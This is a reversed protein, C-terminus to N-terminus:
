RNFSKFGYYLENFGPNRRKLTQKVMSGWIREDEGREALLAELTEVVLELGQLIREEREAASVPMGEGNGMGRPEALAEESTLPEYAHSPKDQRDSRDPKDREAQVRDAKEVKEPKESKEPKEVKKRSARAKAVASSRGRQERVLDDYFI